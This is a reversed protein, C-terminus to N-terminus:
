CFMDEDIDGEISVIDLGFQAAVGAVGVGAKIAQAVMGEITTGGWLFAKGRDIGKGSTTMLNMFSRIQADYEAAPLGSLNFRLIRPHEEDRARGRHGSIFAVANTALLYLNEPDNRILALDNAGGKLSINREDIWNFGTPCFAWTRGGRHPPVGLALLITRKTAVNMQRLIIRMARTKPALGAWETIYRRAAVKHMHCQGYLGFAGQNLNDWGLHGGTAKHLRISMKVLDAYGTTKNIWAPPNSDDQKHVVASQFEHGSPSNGIIDVTKDDLMFQGRSGELVFLGTGEDPIGSRAIVLSNDM